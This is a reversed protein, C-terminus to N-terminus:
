EEYRDRVRHPGAELGFSSWLPSPRVDTPLLLSYPEKLLAGYCFFQIRGTLSATLVTSNM